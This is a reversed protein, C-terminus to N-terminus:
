RTPWTPSTLTSCTRNLQPVIGTQGDKQRTEFTLMPALEEPLIQWESTTENQTGALALSFPQDLIKQAMNAYPSADMIQPQTQEISLVIQTLNLQGAQRTILELSAAIDLRQGAQGMQPVVQTGQMSLQAEIAPHDYLQGIQQLFSAAAPQDIVLTPDLDNASSNGLTQHALWSGFAGGRGFSYAERVSAATDLSIGLSEPTADIPNSGYWLTIKGDPTLKFNTALYFAAQEQSLGGVNVGAIQIGPLIRGAYWVQYVGIIAFTATFFLLAGLLLVAASKLLLYKFSNSQSSSTPSM